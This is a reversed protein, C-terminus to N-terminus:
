STHARVLEHGEALAKDRFAERVSMLDVVDIHRLTRIAEVERRIALFTSWDVARSGLIGIDIDSTDRADGRAQSGFLILKYSEDLHRRVVERVADIIAQEKMRVSYRLGVRYVVNGPCATAIVGM